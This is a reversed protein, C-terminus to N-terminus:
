RRAGPGGYPELMAVLSRRLELLRESHDRRSLMRQVAFLVSRAEVRDTAVLGGGAEVARTLRHVLSAAAEDHALRDVLERAEDDSIPVGRVRIVGGAYAFM